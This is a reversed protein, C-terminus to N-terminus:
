ILVVWSAPQHDSQTLCQSKPRVGGRGCAYLHPDWDTLEWWAVDASGKEQGTNIQGDFSQCLSPVLDIERKMLWAVCLGLYRVVTSLFLSPGRRSEREVKCLPTLLDSEGRHGLFLM